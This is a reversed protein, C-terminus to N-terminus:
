YTITIHSLKCESPINQDAFELELRSFERLLDGIVLSHRNDSEISPAESMFSLTNSIKACLHEIKLQNQIELSPSNLEPM